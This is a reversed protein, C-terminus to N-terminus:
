AIKTVAGKLDMMTPPAPAQYFILGSGEQTHDQRVQNIRVIPGGTVILCYEAMNTRRLFVPTYKPTCKFPTELYTFREEEVIEKELLTSKLGKATAKVFCEICSDYQQKLTEDLLSKENAVTEESALIPQPLKNGMALYVTGKASNGVSEEWVKREPVNQFAVHWITQEVYKTAESPDALLSESLKTFFLAM